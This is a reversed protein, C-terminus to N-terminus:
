VLVQLTHGFKTLSVANLPRSLTAYYNAGITKALGSPLTVKMESVVSLQEGWIPDGTKEEEVTVGDAYVVSRSGDILDTSTTQGSYPLTVTQSSESTAVTTRQGSDGILHAYSRENSRSGSLRTYGGDPRVFKSLRGADDYRCYSCM